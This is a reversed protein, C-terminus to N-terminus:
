ETAPVSRQWQVTRDGGVPHRHADLPHQPDVEELVPEVQGIGAGFFREIIGPRQAGEDADVQAAFRDGIFRRQALEAVPHLSMIQTVRQEM